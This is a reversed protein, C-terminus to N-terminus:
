QLWSTVRELCEEIEAPKLELTLTREYGVAMLKALIDELDIIGEGPIGEVM